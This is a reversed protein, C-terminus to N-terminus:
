GKKSQRSLHLYYNAVSDFLAMAAEEHEPSPRYQHLGKLNMLTHIEFMALNIEDVTEFLYYTFPPIRQWVTRDISQSACYAEQYIHWWSSVVKNIREAPYDAFFKPVLGKSKWGILTMEVSNFLIEIRESETM